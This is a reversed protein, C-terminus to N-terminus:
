IINQEHLMIRNELQKKTPQEVNDDILKVSTREGIDSIRVEWVSYGSVHVLSYKSGCQGGNVAIRIKKM